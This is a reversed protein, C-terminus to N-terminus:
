DAAAAAAAAAAESSKSKTKNAANVANFYNSSDGIVLTTNCEPTCNYTQRGTGRVLNVVKATPRSIAVRRDMIIKQDADLAIINTIGFTKGTVVLMTGSSIAVDVISPNGIIIESVRKPLRIIQSQDYTVMLDQEGAASKTVPLVTLFVAGAILCSLLRIPLRSISSLNFNSM